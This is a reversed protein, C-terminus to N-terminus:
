AKKKSASRKAHFWAWKVDGAKKTKVEQVANKYLVVRDFLKSVSTIKSAVYSYITRAPINNNVMYSSLYEWSWAIAVWQYPIVNWYSDVVVIDFTKKNVLIVTFTAKESHEKIKAIIKVAWEHIKKIEKAKVWDLPLSEICHRISLDWAFLYYYDGVDLIKSIIDAYEDWRCTRRDACMEISEWLDRVFVLTM